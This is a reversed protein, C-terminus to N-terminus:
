AASAAAAVAAATDTEYERLYANPDHNLAGEPLLEWYQGLDRKIRQVYFDPLVDSEREWYARFSRDTAM